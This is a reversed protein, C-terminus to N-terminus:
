TKNIMKNIDKEQMMLHFVIGHNFFNGFGLFLLYCFISNLISINSSADFTLVILILYLVRLFWSTASAVSEIKNEYGNVNGIFVPIKNLIIRSVTIFPISILIIWIIKKQIVWGVYTSVVIAILHYVIIILISVWILKLTKKM